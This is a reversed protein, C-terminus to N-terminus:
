LENLDGLSSNLLINLLLLTPLLEANDPYDIECIDSAWKKLM